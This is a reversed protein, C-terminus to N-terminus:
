GEFGARHEACSSMRSRNRNTGYRERRRDGCALQDRLQQRVRAKWQRTNKKNCHELTGKKCYADYKMPLKLTVLDQMSASAEIVATQWKEMQIAGKMANGGAIMKCFKHLNRVKVQASRASAKKEESTTLLQAHSM